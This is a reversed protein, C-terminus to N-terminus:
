AEETRLLVWPEARRWRRAPAIAGLLGALGCGLICAAALLVTEGANPWHFPVRFAELVPGAARVFVCLAAAGIALGCVGGLVAVVVAEAVLVGTQQRPRAGMAALLGIERRREAFIASFAAALLLVLSAFMLVALGTAGHRLAAAGQRVATLLRSGSVVKLEPHQALAFRVDEAAAGPALQVLIASVQGLHLQDWPPKPDRQQDFLPLFIARDFPGVETPQLKGYVELSKGELTVVGGLSEGRRGGALADGPRMPRRLRDRLWAQVTFDRSPDFAIVDVEEPHGAAPIPLRLLRQPAARAVGPTRAIREVWEGPLTKETPEVTLMARSLHVLTGPPVVLLDAGLRAVGIEGSAQLARAAVLAAFIGGSAVAISGALLFTRTPRRKLNEIALRFLIWRRWRHTPEAM